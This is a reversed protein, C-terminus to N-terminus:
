RLIFDEDGNRKVQSCLNSLFEGELDMVGLRAADRTM